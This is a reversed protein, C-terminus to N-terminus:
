QEKCSRCTQWSTNMRDQGWKMFLSWPYLKMNLDKDRFRILMLDIINYEHFSQLTYTDTQYTKDSRSRMTWHTCYLKTTKNIEWTMLLCTVSVITLHIHRDQRIQYSWTKLKLNMPWYDTKMTNDTSLISYAITWSYKTYQIIKLQVHADQLTWIVQSLKWPENTLTIIKHNLRNWLIFSNSPEFYWAQLCVPIWM